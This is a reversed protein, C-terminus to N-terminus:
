SIEFCVSFVLYFVYWSPTRRGHYWISRFVNCDFLLVSLPILIIVTKAKVTEPVRSSMEFCLEGPGADLRSGDYKYFVITSECFFIMGYRTGSDELFSVTGKRMKNKVRSSYHIANKHLSFKM